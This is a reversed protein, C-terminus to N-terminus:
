SRQIAEMAANQMADSSPASLKMTVVRSRRALPKVM